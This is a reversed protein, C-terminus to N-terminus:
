GWYTAVLYEDDRVGTEGRKQLVVEDRLLKIPNQPTEQVKLTNRENKPPIDWQIRKPYDTITLM